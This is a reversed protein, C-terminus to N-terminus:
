TPYGNFAMTLTTENIPMREHKDTIVFMNGQRDVHIKKFKFHEAMESDTLLDIEDETIERYTM